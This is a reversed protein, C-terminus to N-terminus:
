IFDKEYLVNTFHKLLESRVKFIEKSPSSRMDLVWHNLITDLNPEEEKSENVQIPLRPLSKCLLKIQYAM